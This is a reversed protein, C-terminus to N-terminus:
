YGYYGGKSGRKLIKIVHARQGGGMDLVKKDKLDGLFSFKTTNLREHAHADYKKNVTNISKSNRVKM